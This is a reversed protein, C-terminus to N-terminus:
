GESGSALRTGFPRFIEMKLFEFSRCTHLVKLRQNPIHGPSALLLSRMCEHLSGLSKVGQPQHKGKKVGCDVLEDEGRPQYLRAM